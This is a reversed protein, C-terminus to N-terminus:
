YRYRLGFRVRLPAQRDIISGWQTAAGPNLNRSEYTVPTHLNFANFMEGILELNHSEGILRKTLHNLRWTLKLDLAVRAPTRLEVDDAPTSLDRPDYGRPARRDLYDRYYKNYYLRDYPTGTAVWLNGGITLIKRWSYWGSVRVVHTRDDPQIGDYFISQRPNDLFLTAYGEGVTGENRSWTYSAMLQWNGVFRRAFVSLSLYRRYAQEPTELDFIFESKGNKFGTASDGVENWIVNTELDEWQNSYHRFQFDLGTSFGTLWERELGVTLEHVRPVSLADPNFKNVAKGSADYDPGSPRGVTRTQGGLNCNRSYTGTNEDWECEYSILDRGIFRALSLFGVDVYQNYGGRLVTKGNGFPDWTFNLHLTGTKFDTVTEGDPNVANGFHFAAGPILRLRNYRPLKWNDQVFAILKNGSVSTELRGQQCATANYKASSPDCASAEDFALFYRTLSYPQGFENKRLENGVYTQTSPNAMYQYRFGGKLEHNGGRKSDFFRTADWNLTVRYRDDDTLYSYNRQTVGTGIDLIQSLDNNGSEPYIRLGNWGFGLQTKIFLKDSALWEWAATALVNYQNQHSEADPEVTLLQQTNAISAPSTQAWLMLRHKPHPQWTLKGLWKIGFYRRRPHDPLVQNPDPPLSRTAENLEFSTYYWLRDKRIPGGLNLNFDLTRFSDGVLEPDKAALSSDQYYLSADLELKNSGSKTVMNVVGGPTDSHEPGLGGTMINVDSMADFNFNTSFTHTVPDTTEMGDVTYTNNFYSGGAISPNGSGAVPNVNRTMEAVGQYSRGVLPVSELYEDSLSEGTTSKTVDVVPRASTIVYTEAKPRGSVPPVGPEEAAGPKAPKGPKGPKGVTPPPEAARELVLDLTVTKGVNVRIGGRAVPLFGGRRVSVQFAGPILALFRFAGDSGTVTSKAGGIQTPSSATVQAGALPMGEDDYVVGEIRGTREQALALRPCLALLLLLLGTCRM